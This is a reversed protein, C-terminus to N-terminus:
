KLAELMKDVIGRGKETLRYRKIRMDIPDAVPEVLGFGDRLNRDKLGLDLLQRSTTSSPQGMSKGIDTVSQLPNAAVHLLIGVMDLTIRSPLHNGGEEQYRRTAEELVALCRSLRDIRQAPSTM